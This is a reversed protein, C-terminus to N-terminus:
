GATALHALNLQVITITKDNAVAFRGREADLALVPQPMPLHWFISSAQVGSDLDEFSHLVAGTKLSIIRPHGFFAVVHDPGAAMMTGAIQALVVAADCVGNSVDFRAIGRPRLRLAPRNEPSEEADEQGDASAILIHRDDCFTAAIEEFEFSRAAQAMFESADLSRADALAAAVDYLAVADWPQWIWGASAFRTGSPNACLRSHFFDSPKREGRTLREGTLADDIELQCYEEPCHVIGTRGAPLRLFGIPYEFAEAHYDSRNLERCLKGDRLLLAKTGLRQYVVVHRGDPAAIAGDFSSGFSTFVPNRVTGDFRYSIQGSAYDIVADEAFTLTKVGHGAITWRTFLEHEQRDLM